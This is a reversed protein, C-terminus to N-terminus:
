ESTTTSTSEATSSEAKDAKSRNDITNRYKKKSLPNNINDSHTKFELNFLRNDYSNTNSHCCDLPETPEGIFTLGVLRHVRVRKAKGNHSLDVRLYGIGGDFQKLIKAQKTKYLRLVRGLNSVMYRDKYIGGFCEVKRWVEVGIASLFRALVISDSVSHSDCFADYFQQICGSAYFDIIDHMTICGCIVAEDGITVFRTFDISQETANFLDVNNGTDFLYQAKALSVDNNYQAHSAVGLKVYTASNSTVSIGNNVQVVNSSKNNLKMSNIGKLM